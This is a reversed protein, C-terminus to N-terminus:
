HSVVDKLLEFMGFNFPGTIFCGPICSMMTELSEMELADSTVCM